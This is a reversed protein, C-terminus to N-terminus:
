VGTFTLLINARFLYEGGDALRLIIDMGPQQGTLQFLLFIRKGPPINRRRQALFRRLFRRFCLTLGILRKM